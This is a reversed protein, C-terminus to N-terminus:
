RDPIQSRSGAPSRTHGAFRRLRPQAEHISRVPPSTTIRTASRPRVDTLRQRRRKGHHKDAVDRETDAKETQQGSGEDAREDAPESYQDAPPLVKMESSCPLSVRSSATADQPVCENRVLDRSTLLEM